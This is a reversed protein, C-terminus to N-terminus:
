CGAVDAGGAPHDDFSRRGGTRQCLERTAAESERHRIESPSCLAVRLEGALSQNAQCYRSINEKFENLTHVVELSM